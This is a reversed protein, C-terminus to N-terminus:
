EAEKIGTRIYKWRCRPRGLPKKGEPKAVLVRYAEKRKWIHPISLTIGCDKISPASLQLSITRSATPLLPFKCNSSTSHTLLQPSGCSANYQAFTNPM